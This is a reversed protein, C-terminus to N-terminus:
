IIVQIGLTVSVIGAIYYVIHMLKAQNKELIIIREKMSQMKPCDIAGYPCENRPPSMRERGYNKEPLHM